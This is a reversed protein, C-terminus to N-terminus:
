EMIRCTWSGGVDPKSLVFLLNQQESYTQTSLVSFFFADGLAGRRSSTTSPEADPNGASTRAAAAKSWGPALGLLRDPSKSGGLVRQALSTARWSVPRGRPPCTLAGRMEQRQSCSLTPASVDKSGAALQKARTRRTAPGYQM